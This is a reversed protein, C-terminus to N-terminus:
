RFRRNISVTNLHNIPGHGKGYNPNTRIASNVYKIGLECSKKLPKGCSLFTTIASSLTCGTGHTNKTEYRKSNFIKIDSKNVFIDQVLKSKLHGGKILVNKAGFEILKNAAFIMDEKSRIRTKTLIEAEPINPTILTVRKILKVKLSKIAKSDILKAGGKAIMVPDLVIKKVKIKDLSRIVSEIVEKSHLMGIKIANPKIDKSTFIIQNSIEKPNISIISKVGTTNQSTVATITTMAYSGLSTVTKIDAQIGAGGSSDSGAIILVKSKPKL